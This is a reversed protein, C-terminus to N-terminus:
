GRNEYGHHGHWGGHRHDHGMVFATLYHLRHKQDETLSQYLPQAADALKKLQAARETMADAKARLREIADESRREHRKAIWAQRSQALERIAQEVAPWNKEQEPTLKLGAKLAAIRADTLAQLDAESPGRESTEAAPTESQEAYCAAPVLLALATLGAAALKRM